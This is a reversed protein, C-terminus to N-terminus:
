EVKLKLVTLIQAYFVNVDVYILKESSHKKGYFYKSKM